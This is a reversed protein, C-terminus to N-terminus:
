EITIAARSTIEGTWIDPIPGGGFLAPAAGDLTQYGGPMSTVTNSLRWAITAPGVPADRSIVLRQAFAAEAGAAILPFDSENPRYGHPRPPPQSLGLPWGDPGSLWLDSFTARFAEPGLMYIRWPRPGDNRVV